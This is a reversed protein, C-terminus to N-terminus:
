PKHMDALTFTRTHADPRTHHIWCSHHGAAHHVTPDPMLGQLVPLGRGEVGARGATDHLRTGSTLEWSNRFGTCQMSHKQVNLLCALKEERM